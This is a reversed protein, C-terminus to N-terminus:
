KVKKKLWVGSQVDTRKNRIVKLKAWEKKIGTSNELFHRSKSLETFKSCRMFHEQLMRFGWFAYNTIVM